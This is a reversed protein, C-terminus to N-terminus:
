QSTSFPSIQRYDRYTEDHVYGKPLWLVKAKIELRFHKPLWVGKTVLDQELVFSTGPMVKAIFWGFAVPKLVEAEVRVWQYNDKDIWLTGKMGTLIKTERSIPQYEPRPTAEFVYVDHDELREEGALKFDFAEGMARMLNFIRNLEEQYQALRKARQKESEGGRKAIVRELKESERAQEAPSLPQDNVAILRYYPSGDIMLVQYTKSSALGGRTDADREIDSFDPIAKWDAEAAAISLRIIEQTHPEVSFALPVFALALWLYVLVRSPLHPPGHYSM